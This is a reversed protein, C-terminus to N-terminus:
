PCPKSVQVSKVEELRKELIFEKNSALINVVASYGDSFGQMYLDTAIEKSEDETHEM